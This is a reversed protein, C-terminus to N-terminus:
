AAAADAEAAPPAAAGGAAPEDKIADLDEALKRRSEAAKARMRELVAATGGGAPSSRAAFPGPSDM